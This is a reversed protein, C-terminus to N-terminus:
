PAFGVSAATPGIFNEDYDNERPTTYTPSHYNYIGYSPQDIHTGRHFLTPFPVSCLRTGDIWYEFLGRGGASAAVTDWVVHAVLDYWHDVKIGPAARCATSNFTPSGADGGALRVVLTPTDTNHYYVGLATSYAATTSDTHWEMLWDWDGAAPYWPSRFKMKVRYWTSDGPRNHQNLGTSSGGGWAATINSNTDTRLGIGQGKFGSVPVLYTSNFTYQTGNSSGWGPAWPYVLDSGLDGEFGQYNYYGSPTLSTVPASTVPATAASAATASGASNSATLSVRMTSGVDAATLVYSAATAGAIPACSDGGAGCRQWAYTYTM